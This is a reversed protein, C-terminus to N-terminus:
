ADEISEDGRMGGKDRLATEYRRQWEQAKDIIIGAIM